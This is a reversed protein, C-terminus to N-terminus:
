PYTVGDLCWDGHVKREGVDRASHTHAYGLDEERQRHWKVSLRFWFYLCKCDEPEVFEHAM